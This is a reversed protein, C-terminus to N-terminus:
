SFNPLSDVVGIFPLDRGWEDVDMGFGVVWGETIQFGVYDLKVSKTRDEIKDVLVCVQCSKAVGNLQGLIAALTVGQDIIDEVLLINRGALEQPCFGELRVEDVFGMGTTRSAAISTLGRYIGPNADLRIIEQQLNEAFIRAGKELYLIVFDERQKEYFRYVDLALEKVRYLIEEASFVQKIASQDFTLM